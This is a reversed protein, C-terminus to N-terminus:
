RNKIMGAKKLLFLIDKELDWYSKKTSIKKPILILDYSTHLYKSNLRIIEKMRRRLKNREVSNGIKKTISYGVRNYGLNNKKVYITLTKNWYNKGQKYVRQFERDNKLSEVKISM